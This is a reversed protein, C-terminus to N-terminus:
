FVPNVPFVHFFTKGTFGTFGTLLMTIKRKGEETDGCEAAM